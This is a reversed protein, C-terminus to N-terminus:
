ASRRGAFRSQRGTTRSEAAGRTQELRTLFSQYLARNAEAERELQRLQIEAQSPVASRDKAEELGEVLARERSRAWGSRKGPQCHHEWGRSRDQLSLEGRGGSAELMIPHLPDYEKSLQAAEPAGSSGAPASCHHSPVVHSRGTSRLECRRHAARSGTAIETGKERAGRTGQAAGLQPKGAGTRWLDEKVASWRMPLM